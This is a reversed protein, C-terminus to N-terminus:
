LGPPLGSGARDRQGEEPPQLVSEWFPRVCGSVTVQPVLARPARCIHHYDSGVDPEESGSRVRVFVLAKGAERHRTLSGKKAAPQTCGPGSQRRMWVIRIASRMGHDRPVWYGASAGPVCCHTSPVSGARWSPGGSSGPDPILSFGRAGGQTRGEATALYQTTNM